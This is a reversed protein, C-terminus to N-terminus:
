AALEVPEAELFIPIDNDPQPKGNLEVAPFDGHLELHLLQTSLEQANSEGDLEKVEFSMSRKALEIDERASSDEGTADDLQTEIVPGHYTKKGHIFWLVIAFIPTGSASLISWNMTESTVPLDNPWLSFFM